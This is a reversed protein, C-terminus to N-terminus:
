CKKQKYQASKKEVPDVEREELIHYSNQPFFM